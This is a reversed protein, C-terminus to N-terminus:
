EGSDLIALASKCACGFTRSRLLNEIVPPPLGPNDKAILAAQASVFEDALRQTEAIRQALSPSPTKSFPTKV